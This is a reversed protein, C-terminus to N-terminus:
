NEVRSDYRNQAAAKAEPIFKLEICVKGIAQEALAADEKIYSKSLIGSASPNVLSDTNLSYIDHWQIIKQSSHVDRLLQRVKLDINGLNKIYGNNAKSKLKLKITVSDDPIVATTRAPTASRNVM